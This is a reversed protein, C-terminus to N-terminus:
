TPAKVPRVEPSTPTSQNVRSFNEPIPDWFDLYHIDIEDQNQIAREYHNTVLILSGRYYEGQLYNDLEWANGVM